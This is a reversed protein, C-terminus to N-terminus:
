PLIKSKALLTTEANFDILRLLRKEAHEKATGDRLEMVSVMTPLTGVGRQIASGSLLFVFILIVTLPRSHLANFGFSAASDSFGAPIKAIRKEKQRIIWGSVYVTNLVLLLLYVFYAVNRLRYPGPSTAAYATPAFQSAYVCFSFFVVALPYRFSWKQLNLEPVIFLVAALILALAALDFWELAFYAGYVLAMLVAKVPHSPAYGSEVVAAQRIANGPASMSIVMGLAFVVMLSLIAPIMKRDSKKISYLLALLLFEGLVMNTAYNGGSIFLTLALSLVTLLARKVPHACMFALLVCSIQVLLLSHFFTYFIASNYWFFGECVSSSLTISLLLILFTIILWSRFDIKMIRILVTYTLFFTAFILAFFMIYPTWHYASFDFAGPQLAMLFIASFTGQWSERIQKVVHVAETLTAGISDDTERLATVSQSFRLDDGYPYDYKAMMLLPVLSVILVIFLLLSLLTKLELYKYRKM